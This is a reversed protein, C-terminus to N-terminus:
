EAGCVIRTVPQIQYLYDLMIFKQEASSKLHSIVLDDYEDHCM